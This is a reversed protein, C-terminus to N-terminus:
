DRVRVRVSVRVRVRDRSFKRSQITTVKFQRSVGVGGSLWVTKALTLYSKEASKLKTSAYVVSYLSVDGSIAEM